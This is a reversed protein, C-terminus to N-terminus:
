QVGAIYRQGCRKPWEQIKRSYSELLRRWIAVSVLYIGLAWHNSSEFPTARVGGRCLLGSFLPTHLDSIARKRRLGHTAIEEQQNAQILIEEISIRCAQGLVYLPFRSTLDASLLLEHRKQWAGRNRQLQLCAANVSWFRSQPDATGRESGAM